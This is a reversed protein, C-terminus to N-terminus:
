AYFLIFALKRIYINTELQNNWAFFFLFLQSNKMLKGGGEDDSGSLMKDDHESANTQNLDDSSAYSVNINTNGDEGCRSGNEDSSNVRYDGTTGSSAMAGAGGSGSSTNMLRHHEDSQIEEINRPRISDFSKMYDFKNQGMATADGCSSKYIKHIDNNDNSDVIIDDYHKRKLAGGGAGDANTRITRGGSVSSTVLLDKSNDGSMSLSDDYDNAYGDHMQQGNNKDITKDCDYADCHQQQQQQLQQQHHHHQQHHNERNNGYNSDIFYHKNEKIQRVYDFEQNIISTSDFAIADLNKLHSVYNAQYKETDLPNLHEKTIMQNDITKM